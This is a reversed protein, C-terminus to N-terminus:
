LTLQRGVKPKPIISFEWSQGELQQNDSLVSGAVVLITVSFQGMHLRAGAQIM